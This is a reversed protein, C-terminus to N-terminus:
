SVEELYLSQESVDIPKVLQENARYPYSIRETKSMTM